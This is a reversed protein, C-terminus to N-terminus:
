CYYIKVGMGPAQTKFNYLLAPKFEIQDSEGREIISLYDIRKKSEIEDLNKNTNNLKNYKEISNWVFPTRLIIRKAGSEEDEGSEAYDVGYHYVTEILDEVNIQYHNYLVMERMDLNDVLNQADFSFSAVKHIEFENEVIGEFEFTDLVNKAVDVDFNDVVLYVSIEEKFQDFAKKFEFYDEINEEKDLIESIFSPQTIYFNGEKDNELRNKQELFSLYEKFVEFASKRNELPQNDKFEKIFTENRVNNDKDFALFKFRVEYHFPYQNSM